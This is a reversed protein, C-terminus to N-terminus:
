YGRWWDKPKDWYAEHIKVAEKRLLPGVVEVARTCRSLIERSSIGINDGSIRGLDDNPCGYVLRGIGSWYIAGTCMACPETSTYLTCQSLEEKNLFMAARTAVTLEAHRTIDQTTIKTSEAQTIIEGKLMILAGFPQNGHKVADRALAFAIRLYKEDDNM